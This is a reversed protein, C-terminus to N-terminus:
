CNQSLSGFTKTPTKFKLSQLHFQVGLAYLVENKWQPGLKLDGLM